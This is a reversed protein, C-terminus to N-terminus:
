SAISMDINAVQKSSINAAVTTTYTAAAPLTATLTTGVPTFTPSTGTFQIQAVKGQCAAPITSFVITDLVFEPPTAATSWKSTYTVNINPNVGTCSTVASNGASLSSSTIGLSAAFAYASSGIVAAALVSLVLKKKLVLAVLRM